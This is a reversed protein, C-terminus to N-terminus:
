RSGRQGGGGGPGREGGPGRGGGPPRGGGFRERMEARFREREAEPMNMYRERRDQMETRFRDREAESMNQFRERMGGQGGFGGFEGGGGPGGASGVAVMQASGGGAEGSRAAARSDRPGGPQSSDESNIPAFTTEKGEWEITAETPGIAVVKADGVTDGVKYWKDKILVEDGFIGLVEKVPHEKPPSPVFLNNKKLEDALLKYKAFYRDMDEADANNQAIATKVINEARASATFFGTIKVLILVALFASVGFLVVSVLEKKEKLYDLKM